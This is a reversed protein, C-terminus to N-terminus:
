DMEPVRSLLRFFTSRTRKTLPLVQNITKLCDVAEDPPLASTFPARELAFHAKGSAIAATLLDSVEVDHPPRVATLFFGDFVISFPPGTPPAYEVLAALLPLNSLPGDMVSFEPTSHVPSAFLILRRTNPDAIFRLVAALNRHTADDIRRIASM